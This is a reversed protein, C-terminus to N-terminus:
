TTSIANLIFTSYDFYTTELIFCFKLFQKLGFYIVGKGFIHCITWIDEWLRYVFSVNARSHNGMM